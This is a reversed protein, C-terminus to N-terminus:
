LYHCRSTPDRQEFPQRSATNGIHAAASSFGCAQVAMKYPAGVHCLLRQAVAVFSVSHFSVNASAFVGLSRSSTGPAGLITKEGM